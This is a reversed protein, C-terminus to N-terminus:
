TNTVNHAGNQSAGSQTPLGTPPPARASRPRAAQPIPRQALARPEASQGTPHRPISAARARAAVRLSRRRAAHAAPPRPESARTGTSPRHPKRSPQPLPLDGSQWLLLLQELRAFIRAFIAAILADLSWARNERAPADSRRRSLRDALTPPYSPM